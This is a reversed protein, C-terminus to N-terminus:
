SGTARLLLSSEALVVPKGEAGIIRGQTVALGRGLHAVRAEATLTGSGPVVPRIFRMRLDIPRFGTGAPLQPMVASSLAADALFALAGGYLFPGPSGLWPSAPMAWSVSDTDIGEPEVGTLYHLPPAPLERRLWGEFVERGSLSALLAPDAFGGPAERQWPDPGEYERAPPLPEPEEPVPVRILVLRSTAHALLRGSGDLIQAETFGTTQGAKVVDSRAVLREADLGAPRLYSISLESTTCAVGAPLTTRLASGLPADSVFGAAGPTVLGTADLLWRTVPMAFTSHSLGADTPRLGTLHAIPPPEFRGEIFGRAEDIGSMTILGPHGSVGRVPEDLVGV